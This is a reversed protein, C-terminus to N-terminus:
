HYEAVITHISADLKGRLGYTPSWIDEEIDHLSTIALLANQNAAARTNTLVADPQLPVDTQSQSAQSLLDDKPTDAINCSSFVKLGKSRLKLERKADEISSEVKVIEPLDKMVADEILDEVNFEDWKQTALCTQMIEHLMNSWVIAPTVDSTSRVM